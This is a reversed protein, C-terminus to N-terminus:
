LVSAARQSKIPRKALPDLRWIVWDWASGAALWIGAKPTRRSTSRRRVKSGAAIGNRSSKGAQRAATRKDPPSPGWVIVSQRDRGKGPPQARYSELHPQPFPGAWATPLLTSAAYRRPSRKSFRHMAERAKLSPGAIAM